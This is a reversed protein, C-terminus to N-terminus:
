GKIESGGCSCKERGICVTTLLTTFCFLVADWFAYMRAIEASADPAFSNFDDSEILYLEKEVSTSENRRKTIMHELKCRMLIALSTNLEKGFPLRDDTYCFPHLYMLGLQTWEITTRSFRDVDGHVCMALVVMEVLNRLNRSVETVMSNFALFAKSM